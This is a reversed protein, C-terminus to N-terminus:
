DGREAGPKEALIAGFWAARRKFPLLRFGLADLPHLIGLFFRFLRLNPWAFQFAFALFSALYFHRVVGRAGGIARLFIEQERRTFYRTITQWEKPALTRRYLWAFPNGPQPEVLAARGGPPLVRALEAAAVPLDVHILVSKTFVAPISGAAFPLREAAGAVAWVKEECGAEAARRRLERLREPSSDVAIVRFGLRAFLIAHAGLGAGLDMVIPNPAGRLWEFAARVDPTDAFAIEDELAIRPAPEGGRLNQPDLNGRWFRAADSRGPAPDSM